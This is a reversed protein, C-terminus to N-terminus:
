TSRSPKAILPFREPHRISEVALDVDLDPWYLHHAKPREVNLVKGIPADRFWPFEAFPMFLEEDGLLLWLGHKSVNTVEVELTNTGLTGSLM